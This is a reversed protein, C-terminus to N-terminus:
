CPCIDPVKVERFADEVTKLNNFNHIYPYITFQEPHESQNLIMNSSLICFYSFENGLARYGRKAFEFVLRGLGCGPMMISVREGTQEDHPKKGLERGFYDNVEDIM